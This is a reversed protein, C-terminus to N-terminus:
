GVSTSWHGGGSREYGKFMEDTGMVPKVEAESTEEQQNKVHELQQARKRSELHFDSIHEGRILTVPEPTALVRTKERVLSAEQLQSNQEIAVETRAHHQIAERADAKFKTEEPSLPKSAEPKLGGKIGLIDGAFLDKIDSVTGGMASPTEHLINRVVSMAEDLAQNAELSPTKWARQAVDEVQSVADTKEQASKNFGTMSGESAMPIPKAKSPDLEVDMLDNEFNDFGGIIGGLPIVREPRKTQFTNLVSTGNAM